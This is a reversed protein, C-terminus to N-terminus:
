QEKDKENMIRLALIAADSSSDSWKDLAICMVEFHSEDLYLEGPTALMLWTFLEGVELVITQVDSKRSPEAEVIKMRAQQLGYGLAVVAEMVVTLDDKDLDLEIVKKEEM